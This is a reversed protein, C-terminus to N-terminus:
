PPGVEQPSFDLIRFVFSMNPILAFVSLRAFKKTECNLLKKTRGNIWRPTVVPDVPFFGSIFFESSISGLQESQGLSILSFMTITAAELPLSKSCISNSLSSLNTLAEPALVRWLLGCLLKFFRMLFASAKSGLVMTMLQSIARFLKGSAWRGQVWWRSCDGSSTARHKRSSWDFRLLFPIWIIEIIPLLGLRGPWGSFFRLSANRAFYILNKRASLAASCLNANSFSSTWTLGQVKLFHMSPTTFIAFVPYLAPRSRRRQLFLPLQNLSWFKWVEAKTM